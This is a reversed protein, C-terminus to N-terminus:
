EQSIIRFKGGPILIKKNNTPLEYKWPSRYHQVNAVTKQPPQRMISILLNDQQITCPKTDNETLNHTV